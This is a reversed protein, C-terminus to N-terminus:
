MAAAAKLPGTNVHDDYSPLAKPISGADLFVGAVGKMFEQVGGGLWKASLAPGAAPLHLDAMFDGAAKSDMGADKAIVALM